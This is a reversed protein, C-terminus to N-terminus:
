RYRKKLMIESTGRGIKEVNANLAYEKSGAKWTITSGDSATYRRQQIWTTEHRSISEPNDFHPNCLLKARSISM